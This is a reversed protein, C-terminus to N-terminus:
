HIEANETVSVFDISLYNLVYCYFRVEPLKKPETIQLGGVQVMNPQLAEPFDIANHSNVLTLSTKQELVNLPPFDSFGFRARIKEEM